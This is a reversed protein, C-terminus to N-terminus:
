MKEVSDVTLVRHRLTSTSFAPRRGSLFEVAREALRPDAAGGRRSGAAVRHLGVWLVCM